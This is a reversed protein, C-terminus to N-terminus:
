AASPRAQPHCSQAAGTEYEDNRKVWDMIEKENRGKPTLDLFNYAGLLLDGGRAYSSYTHFVDGNEDKYFVSFGPLEDSQYKEDEIMAYNYYIKGKALEEKTFSVHYDYNFDSGYSSILKFRWGLRKRYAELDALRGRSIAVFMVDHNALHINAGDVHDAFFSCSACGQGLDWRWMFHYVILQSRGDFLEALTRKGEPTDFVYEKEVKVWPLASPLSSIACAPSHRRARSIRKAHPLGSTERCSATNCPKTEARCSIGGRKIQSGRRAIPSSRTIAGDGTVGSATQEDKEREKAGVGAIRNVCHTSIL